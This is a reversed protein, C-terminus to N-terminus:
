NLYRNVAIQNTQYKIIVSVFDKAIFISIELDLM